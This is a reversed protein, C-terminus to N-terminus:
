VVCLLTKVPVVPLAVPVVPVPLLRLALGLSGEEVVVVVVVVFRTSGFLSSRRYLLLLLLLWGVTSLWEISMIIFSSEVFLVVSYLMDVVVM